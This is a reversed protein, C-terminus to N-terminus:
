CTQQQSAWLHMFDPQFWSNPNETVQMYDRVCSKAANPVNCVTGQLEWVLEWYLPDHM